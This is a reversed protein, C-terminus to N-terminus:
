GGATPGIGTGRAKRMPVGKPRGRAKKEQPPEAIIYHETQPDFREVKHTVTTAKEQDYVEIIITYGRELMDSIIKKAREVDEPKSKDFDISLHGAGCNLVDLCGNIM